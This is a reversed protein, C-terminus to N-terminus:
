FSITFNTTGPHHQPTAQLRRAIAQHLQHTVQRPQATATFFHFSFNCLSYPLLQLNLIGKNGLYVYNWSKLASLSNPKYRYRITLEGVYAAEYLLQHLFRSQVPQSDLHSKFPVELYVSRGDM